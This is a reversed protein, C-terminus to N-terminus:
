GHQATATHAEFQARATQLGVATTALCRSMSTLSGNGLWDRLLAPIAGSELLRSAFERRLVNIHLDTIGAAACVLLRPRSRTTGWNAAPSVWSFGLRCNGVRRNHTVAVAGVASTADADPRLTVHHRMPQAAVAMGRHHGLQEGLIAGPEGPWVPAGLQTHRSRSSRRM